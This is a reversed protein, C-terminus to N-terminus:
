RLDTNTLSFSIHLKMSLISDFVQLVQLAASPSVSKRGGPKQYLNKLNPNTKKKGTLLHCLLFPIGHMARHQLVPVSQALLVWKKNSTISLLCQIRHSIPDQWCLAIMELFRFALFQCSLTSWKAFLIDNKSCLDTIIDQTRWFSIGFNWDSCTAQLQTSCFLM